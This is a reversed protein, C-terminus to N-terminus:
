DGGDGNAFTGKTRGCGNLRIILSILMLGLGAAPRTIQDVNKPRLRQMHQYPKGAVLEDLQHQAFASRCNEQNRSQDQYPSCGDPLCSQCPQNVRVMQGLFRLATTADLRLDLKRLVPKQDYGVAVDELM